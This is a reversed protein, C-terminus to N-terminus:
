DAGRRRTLWDERTIRYLVHPALKHGPPLNPHIFNERPDRTMGIKEMVRRSRQNWETTFSVLAEIGLTGFAHDVAAGAAETAYGNGWSERALRWGVEIAPMFPADFGPRALGAFGILRGPEKVEVAYLGFGDRALGERIRGTLTDSAMRDLAQPFFEMVRPDANLAAFPEADADTWDRLLLRPTEIH